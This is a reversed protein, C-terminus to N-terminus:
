RAGELAARLENRAHHLRTWVTNIPIGLAKAVEDGPLGELVVLAFVERKKASLGEFARRFRRAAEDAEFAEAPTESEDTTSLRAWRSVLALGRAVARNRRRMIMTAIGLLWSRASLDANFQPAARVVELFTVQVVDDADSRPLGLRVVHRRVHPEYREFLDGLADLNGRAVAAILAADSASSRILFPVASM